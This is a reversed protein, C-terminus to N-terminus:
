LARRILALDTTRTWKLGGSESLSPSELADYRSFQVFVAYLCFSPHEVLFCEDNSLSKLLFRCNRLDKLQCISFRLAQSLSSLFVTLSSLACPSHRPVPLRLFVHYAAILRPSNCIFMSGRIESHPFGCPTMDTYCVSFEYTYTPFQRFQFM